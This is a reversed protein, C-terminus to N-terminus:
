FFTLNLSWVLFCVFGLDELRNNIKVLLKIITNAQVQQINNSEQSFERYSYGVWNLHSIERKLKALSEILIKDSTM